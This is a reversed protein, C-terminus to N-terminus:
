QAASRASQIAIAKSVAELIPYKKVAEVHAVADNITMTAVGIEKSVTRVSDPRGSSAPRGVSLKQVPETRFNDAQNRGPEPWFENRLREKVVEVLAAINKSLELKM